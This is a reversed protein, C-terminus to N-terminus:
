RELIIGRGIVQEVSQFLQDLAVILYCASM